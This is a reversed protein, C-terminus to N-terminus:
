SHRHALKTRHMHESMAHFVSQVFAIIAIVVAVLLFVEYVAIGLGIALAILLTVTTSDLCEFKKM